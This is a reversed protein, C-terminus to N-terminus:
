GATVMNEFAFTYAKSKLRGESAIPNAPTFEQCSGGTLTVVKGNPYSVIMTIVDKASAKNKGARNAEFLLTLNRDDESEAIVNTIVPIPNATTWKVLDGNLGMASGAITLAPVDLPDADDAFQGVEFGVPFTNSALVRLRTGFGTIDSM